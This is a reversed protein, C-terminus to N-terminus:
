HMLNLAQNLAITFIFAWLLLEWRFPKKKGLYFNALFLALAPFAIAPHFFLLGGAFPFAAATWVVMWSLLILKKRTEVTRESLHSFNYAMGIFAFVLIFIAPIIRDATRWTNEISIRNFYASYELAVDTLRDTWFWYAALFMLPTVLGVFSGAWERWKVTRYVLFATLLFGYFLISPLYFLSAFTIMFGASFMLDVPEPRNYSELLSKLLSLFLLVSINVPNLTMLGPHSCMMLIFLFSALSSSKQVIEHRTLLLNLWFASTIVVALGALSALIPSGSLLKYLLSYLVVPGSPEPMPPPDPLVAAWAALAFLGAAIYQTAFSTRFFRVLV